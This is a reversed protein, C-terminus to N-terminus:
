SPVTGVARRMIADAFRAAAGPSFALFMSPEALEVELVVPGDPTPLLDVRCYLPAGEAPLAELVRRAVAREGDTPERASIEEEAFLGEVLGAGRTLIAAKRVSHSFAGEVFLMASEGATDVEALYPQVMATRGSALIARVHAVSEDRDRAGLRLTDRSGVSVSPKVVHETGLFAHDVDGGARIFVSPVVPVGAGALAELYRKDTSWRLLGPENALRSVHAVQDAWTLFEERRAPYDWTSRVVVLDYGAWRVGPDDWVAPEVAAGLRNLERSLLRGEEDLTSVEAATALAIRPATPM